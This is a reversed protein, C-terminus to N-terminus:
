PVRIKEHARDAKKKDTVKKRKKAKLQQTSYQQYLNENHNELQIAEQEDEHRKKEKIYEYSNVGKKHRWKMGKVGYHYLENSPVIKRVGM